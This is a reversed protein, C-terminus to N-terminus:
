VDIHMRVRYTKGVSEYVQQLPRYLPSRLYFEKYIDGYENFNRNPEHDLIKYWTDDILIEYTCTKFLGYVNDGGWFALWMRAIGRRVNLHFADMIYWKSFAGFMEEAGPSWSKRVDAGNHGNGRGVTMDFEYDTCIKATASITTDNDFTGKLSKNFDYQWWIDPTAVIEYDTGVTTTFSNTHKITRGNEITNVFYKGHEAPQITITILMRTADTAYITNGDKSIRGSTVNLKGANYNAEPTISVEFRSNVQVLADDTYEKFSSGDENWVKVKITQHPKQSIKLKVYQIKADDVTVIADIDFKGNSVMSEGYVNKVHINGAVWGPEAKSEITYRIGPESRFTNTNDTTTNSKDTTYVHITQHPKNNVTVEIINPDFDAKLVPPTAYIMNTNKQIVPISTINLIGPDYKRKWPVHVIFDARDGPYAFYSDLPLYESGPKKTLIVQDKGFPEDIIIACRAMDEKSLLSITVDEVLVGGTLSLMYKSSNEGELSVTFATGKPASFTSTHTTFGGRYTIVKVTVGPKSQITVTYNPTAVGGIGRETDTRLVIEAQNILQEYYSYFVEILQLKRNNNDM